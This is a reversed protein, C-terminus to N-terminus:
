QQMASAMGGDAVTAVPDAESDSGSDLGATVAGSADLVVVRKIEALAGTM